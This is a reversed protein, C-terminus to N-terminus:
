LGEKDLENYLIQKNVTRRHKSTSKKIYKKSKRNFPESVGAPKGDQRCRGADKIWSGNWCKHGGGYKGDKRSRSM